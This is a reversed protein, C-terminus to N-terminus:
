ITVMLTHISTVSHSTPTDTCELVRGSNFKTYYLLLVYNYIYGTHIDTDSTEQVKEVIGIHGKKILLIKENVQLINHHSQLHM